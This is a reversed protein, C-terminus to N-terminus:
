LNSVADHEVDIFQTDFFELMPTYDPQYKSSGFVSVKNGVASQAKFNVFKNRNLITRGGWASDGKIKYMPLSSESIIHIDKGKKAAAPPTLAKKAFNFCYDGNTKSPCDPNDIEGHLFNDDFQVTLPSYENASQQIQAGLGLVTDLITMNRFIVHVSEFFCMAGQLDTKYAAFDSGEFCGTSHSPVSPDPFIIAGIGGKFGAISHAVNNKFSDNIQDGCNHGPAAFGAYAAGAVINNTVHL